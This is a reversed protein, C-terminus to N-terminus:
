PDVTFRSFASLAAVHCQKAVDREFLMLDSGMGGFQRRHASSKGSYSASMVISSPNESAKSCPPTDPKGQSAIPCTGVVLGTVHKKPTSIDTLNNGPLRAAQEM